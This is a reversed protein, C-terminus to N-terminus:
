RPAPSLELSLSHPTCLVKFPLRLHLPRLHLPLACHPPSPPPSPPPLRASRKPPASFDQAASLLRPRRQSAGATHACEGLFHEATHECLVSAQGPPTQTTILPRIELVKLYYFRASEHSDRSRKWSFYICVQLDLSFRLLDSWLPGRM